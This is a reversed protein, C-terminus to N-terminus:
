QLAAAPQAASSKRAPSPVVARGEMFLNELQASICTINRTEAVRSRGRQGIARALEEDQLIKQLASALATPNGPAVLMGTGPPVLEPIGGTNTAIVPVGYSMAEVLAVPVGEHCGDGLDVSALAVAWIMGKAYFDLLDRHSITGLFSISEGLDLRTVQRRLERELHGSGAFWLRAVVGRDSLIKWAEILFRHGKVELLDAPCLVIKDASAAASLEAPVAVGMPVVQLNNDGVGRAILMRRGENAIARVATASRAKEKLLNNGVIDSRHATFSWPIGSLGSGIMAMTATTGAWHCHIHDAKWEAAIGALWLGKPAVALNRLFTRPSSSHLLCKLSAASERPKRAFARAAGFLVRWSCLRERRSFPVLWTAHPGPKGPSRPVILVEHRRLLEAIEGIVFTEANGFPMCATIYLIRM